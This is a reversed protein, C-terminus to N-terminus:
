LLATSLDDEVEVSTMKGDSANDEEPGGDTHVKTSIVMGLLGLLALVTFIFGPAFPSLKVLWTALAPSFGSSICIGVNFGLSVSTLRINVPFREVLWSSFPGCYFSLFITLCLQAFLAEAVRGSSKSILWIM